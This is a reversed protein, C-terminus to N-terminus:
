KASRGRLFIRAAVLLRRRGWAKKKEPIGVVAEDGAL